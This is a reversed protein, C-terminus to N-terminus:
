SHGDNEARESLYSISYPSKNTALQSSIFKKSESKVKNADM